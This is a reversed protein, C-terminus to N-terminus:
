ATHLAGLFGTPEGRRLFLAPLLQTADLGLRFCGGGLTFAPANIYACVLMQNRVDRFGAKSARKSQVGSATMPM